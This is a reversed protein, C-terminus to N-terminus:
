ICICHIVNQRRKSIMKIYSNYIIDTALSIKSHSTLKSADLAHFNAQFSGSMPIMQKARPVPNACLILRKYM